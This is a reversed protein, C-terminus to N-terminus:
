EYRSAEARWKLLDADSVTPRILEWARIARDLDIGKAYSCREHTFFHTHWWLANQCLMMGVDRPDIYRKEILFTVREFFGVLMWFKAYNLSDSTVKSNEDKFEKWIEIRDQMSSLFERHLNLAMEASFVDTQRRNFESNIAIERRQAALERTQLWLASIAALLALPSFLGAIADGIENASLCLAQIPRGEVSCEDRPSLHFIYIALGFIAAITLALLAWRWTLWTSKPIDSPNADNGTLPAGM